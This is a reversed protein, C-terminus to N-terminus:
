RAATRTFTVWNASNKHVFGATSMTKRPKVTFSSRSVSSLSQDGKGSVGGAMWGTTVYGKPATHRVQYKGNPLGKGKTLVKCGALRFTKVVKGKRVLQIKSSPGDARGACIALTGYSQESTSAAAGIEGAHAATPIAVATATALLVAARTMKPM